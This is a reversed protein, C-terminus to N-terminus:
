KRYFIRCGFSETKALTVQKGNLLEDTAQALYSQAKDPHEGDNDIAGEYKIVWSNGEKWIVYAKPTHQANFDKGVEQTADQLYPFNYKERKAMDQMLEFSEERYLLSDMSNIALLPVGKKKYKRNLQNLRKAYLKAFPCHNCTFVIIFGKAKGFQGLSVMKNDINRLTFEKIAKIQPSKDHTAKSFGMVILLVLLYFLYKPNTAM